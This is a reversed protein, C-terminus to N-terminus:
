HPFETSHVWFGGRSTALEKGRWELGVDPRDAFRAEGDSTLVNEFIAKWGLVSAWHSMKQQVRLCAQENVIGDGLKDPKM